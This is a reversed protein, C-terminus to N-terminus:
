EATEEETAPRLMLIVGVMVALLILGVIEFPLVYTRTLADGILSLNPFEKLIREGESEPIIVQAINTIQNAMESATPWKISTVLYFLFPAGLIVLTLAWLNIRNVNELPLDGKQLAATVAFLTLVAIGGAYLIIQVVALFPAYLLVYLVAVASLCVILSVVSYIVRKAAIVGLASALAVISSVWFAIAEAM